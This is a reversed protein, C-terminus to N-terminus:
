QFSFAFEIRGHLFYFAFLFVYLVVMFWEVSATNVLSSLEDLNVALGFFSSCGGM